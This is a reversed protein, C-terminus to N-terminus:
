QLVVYPEKAGKFNMQRNPAIMKKFMKKYQKETINYQYRAFTSENTKENYFVTDFIYNGDEQKHKTIASLISNEPYEPLNEARNSFDIIETQTVFVYKTNKHNGTFISWLLPELNEVAPDISVIPASQNNFSIKLPKIYDIKRDIEAQAEKIITTIQEQISKKAFSKQSKLLEYKKNKAQVFENFQGQINNFNQDKWNQENITFGEIIQNIEKKVDDLQQKQPAATKLARAKSLLDSFKISASLLAQKKEEISEIKEKSADIEHLNNLFSQYQESFRESYSHTGNIEILNIFPETDKKIFVYSASPWIVVAILKCNDYTYDKNNHRIGVQNEVSTDITIYENKGIQYQKKEKNADIGYEILKLKVENEHLDDIKRPLNELKAIKTSHIYWQNLKEHKKVFYITDGVVDLLYCDPWEVKNIRDNDQLSFKITSARSGSIIVNQNDCKLSAIKHVPQKHGRTNIITMMAKTQNRTDISIQAIDTRGFFGQWGNKRVVAPFILHQRNNATNRIPNGIKFIKYDPISIEDPWIAMTNEQITTKYLKREDTLLYINELLTGDQAHNVMQTFRNSCSLSLTILILSYLKKM